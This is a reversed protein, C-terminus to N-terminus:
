RCSMSFNHTDLSKPWSTLEKEMFSAKKRFRVDGGPSNVSM